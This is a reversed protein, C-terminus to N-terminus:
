AGGGTIARLLKRAFQEMAVVRNNATESETKGRVGVIQGYAIAYLAKEVEALRQKTADYDSLFSRLTQGFGDLRVCTENAQAKSEESAYASGAIEEADRYDAHAESILREVLERGEAIASARPTDINITM